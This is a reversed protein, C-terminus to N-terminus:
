TVTKQTKPDALMGLMCGLAMLDLNVMIGQVGKINMKSHEGGEWKGEGTKATRESGALDGFTFKSEWLEGTQADYRKLRVNAIAHSRSSQENMKTGASVRHTMAVKIMKCVDSPEKLEMELYGEVEAEERPQHLPRRKDLLDFFQFFYIEVVSATFKYTDGSAAMQNMATM